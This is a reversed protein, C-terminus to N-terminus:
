QTLISLVFVVLCIHPLLSADTHSLLVYAIYFIFIFQM